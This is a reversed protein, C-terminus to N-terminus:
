GNEVYSLSCAYYVSLLPSLNLELITLLPCVVCVQDLVLELAIKKSQPHHKWDIHIYLHMFFTNNNLWLITRKYMRDSYLRYKIYIIIENEEYQINHFTLLVLDYINIKKRSVSIAQVYM